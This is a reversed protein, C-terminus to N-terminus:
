VRLTFSLFLYCVALGVLSFNFISGISMGVALTYVATYAYKARVGPILNYLAQGDTGTLVTGACRIFEDM